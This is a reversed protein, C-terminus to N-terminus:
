PPQTPDYRTGPINSEGGPLGDGNQTAMSVDWTAPDGKTVGNPGQPIGGGSPIGPPVQQIAVSRVSGDCYAINIVGQMARLQAGGSSLLFAYGKGTKPKRFHVPAVSYFTQHPAGNITNILPVACECTTNVMGRDMGSSEYGTCVVVLQPYDMFLLTDSAAPISRYTCPRYPDTQVGTGTPHWPGYRTDMGGLLANYLYSVHSRTTYCPQGDANTPTLDHLPLLQAVEPCYRINNAVPIKLFNWWLHPADIHNAWKDTGIPPFAQKNEAQYIAVAQGLARMNSMCVVARAQQQAKGLAPLLIAILIAIIGIVVLL